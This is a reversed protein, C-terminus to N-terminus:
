DHVTRCVTMNNFDCMRREVRIKSNGWLVVGMDRSVPQRDMRQQKLLSKYVPLVDSGGGIPMMLSIVLDLFNM